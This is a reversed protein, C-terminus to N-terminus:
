KSRKTSNKLRYHLMQQIQELLEDISNYSNHGVDQWIVYNNEQNSISMKNQLKIDFINVIEDDLDCLRKLYSMKM